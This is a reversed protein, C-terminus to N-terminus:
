GRRSRAKRQKRLMKVQKTKNQKQGSKPEQTTQREATHGPSNVALVPSGRVCMDKYSQKRCGSACAQSVLTTHKPFKDRCHEWHVHLSLQGRSSPTLVTEMFSTEKSESVQVTKKRKRNIEECVSTFLNPFIM